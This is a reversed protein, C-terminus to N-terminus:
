GRHARAEMLAEQVSLKGANRRIVERDMTNRAVLNYHIVTRDYGAQLQRTPGIREEIQLRKELDWTHTFHVMIHGGHQLDIGHGASGPHLGLMSIKGKNWLDQTKKGEFLTFEPFAKKLMAPEPKYWYAVIIPEGGLENVLGRLAEIKAEHVMRATKDDDYIFGSAMQLLKNSKVASTAATAGVGDMEVFFEKEMQRYMKRAEVPLECEIDIYQAERVDLWDKARLALTVDAIAAHIQKDAGPLPEIQRSYPDQRFWRDMFATHTLGLRQGFDVFWMQGWLDKLGNPTPTGSLNVWRGTRRAVASLAKARVGGQNMRFNKLHTSEDAIVIRFPWRDGLEQVLWQLNEYNILYVDARELLANERAKRDGVISAVRIGAFRTWKKQEDPWPMEVVKKPGIVLAPFFGSGMIKLIDLVMYVTSTKGLGPVAFLNARPTELLFKAAIAQYERPEFVRTM